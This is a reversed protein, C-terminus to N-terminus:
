KQFIISLQLLPCSKWQIVVIKTQEDLLQRQVLSSKFYILCIKHMVNITSKPAQCIHNSRCTTRLFLAPLSWKLEGKTNWPFLSSLNPVVHPHTFLSVINMKPYVIEKFFAFANSQYCVHTKMMLNWISAISKPFIWWLKFMVVPVLHLLKHLDRSSCLTWELQKVLM